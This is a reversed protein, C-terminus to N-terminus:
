RILRLPGQPEQGDQRTWPKMGVIGGDHAKWVAVSRKTALSWIIIWGDGDGTALYANEDFFVLSHITATHGRLIFRPILPPNGNQETAPRSM